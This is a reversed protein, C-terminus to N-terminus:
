QIDRGNEKKEKLLKSLIDAFAQVEEKSELTVKYVPKPACREEDKPMNYVYYQEQLNEDNPIVRECFLTGDNISYIKYIHANNKEITETMRADPKIQGIFGVYEDRSVEYISNDM